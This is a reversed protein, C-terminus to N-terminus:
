KKEKTILDERGIHKLGLQTIARGRSQYVILEHMLLQPEIINKLTNQDVNIISALSNVGCTGRSSNALANLVKIAVEDLGINDLGLMDFIKKVDKETISKVDRSVKFDRIRKLLNNAIRPTFISREAISKIIKDGIKVSMKQSSQKVIKIMDAMTYKQLTIKIDFRDLFPRPLAGQEGASLGILTFPGVKFSLNGVAGFDVNKKLVSNFDEMALYMTECLAPKLRHIEDIIVIPNHTNKIQSFLDFIDNYDELMSGVATVCKVGMKSAIIKSLTTKGVGPGCSTIMIHGIPVDRKQASNIADDLIEKARVQGIYEKFDKPVIIPSEFNSDTDDDINLPEVLSTGYIKTDKTMKIDFSVLSKKAM